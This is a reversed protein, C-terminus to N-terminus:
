RIITVAGYHKNGKGDEFIYYYTGSPVDEGFNEGDWLNIYPATTYVVNGYRNYITIKNDPYKFVNGIYFFDNDGDNNPTFTNYFILTDSPEVYVTCQDYGQCGNGDTGILLYVTTTLPSADPNATTSYMLTNNPTWWYASAGSGQLAVVDGENITFDPGASVNPLPNVTVTVTETFSACASSSITVTYTTTSNITCSPNPDSPNTLGTAPLWAYTMGGITPNNPNGLIVTQGFCIATDRGAGAFASPQFWVDITDRDIQGLADTVRVIYQSVSLTPSLTPNAITSNSLGTSPTWLYTYPPNGGSATPSGGIIYTQGLCVVPNAGANANVQASSEFSGLLLLLLINRKILTSHVSLCYTLRECIYHIRHLGCM